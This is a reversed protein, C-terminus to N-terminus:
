DFPIEIHSFRYLTLVPIFLSVDNDNAEAKGSSRCSDGRLKRSGLHQEKLFCRLTQSLFRNPSPSPAKDSAKSPRRLAM